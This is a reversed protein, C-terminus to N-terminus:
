KIQYWDIIAKTNLSNPSNVKLFRGMRTSFNELDKRLGDSIRGLKKIDRLGMPIYKNFENNLKLFEQKFKNQDKNISNKLIVDNISKIRKEKEVQHIKPNFIPHDEFGTFAGKSTGLGSKDSSLKINKFYGGKPVELMVFAERILERLENKGM